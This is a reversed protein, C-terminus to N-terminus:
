ITHPFATLQSVLWGWSHLDRERTLIRTGGFMLRPHRAHSPYLQEYMEHRRYQHMSVCCRGVYAARLRKPSISIMLAACGGRVVQRRPPVALLLHCRSLCSFVPLYMDM